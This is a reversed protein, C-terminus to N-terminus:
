RTIECAHVISRIRSLVFIPGILRGTLIARAGVWCDIGFLGVIMGAVGSAGAAFWVNGIARAIQRGLAFSLRERLVRLAAGAVNDVM